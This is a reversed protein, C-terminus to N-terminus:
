KQKKWLIIEGDDNHYRAGTETDAEVTPIYTTQSFLARTKEKLADEGTAQTTIPPYFTGTKESDTTVPIPNSQYDALAEAATIGTEVTTDPSSVAAGTPNPGTPASTQPIAVRKGTTKSGCAALMILLSIVVLVMVRKSM